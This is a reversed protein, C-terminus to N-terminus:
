LWRQKLAYGPDSHQHPTYDRDGNSHDNSYCGSGTCTFGEHFLEYSLHYILSFGMDMGCGGIVIADGSKNLRMGTAKAVSYNPHLDVTRFTEPTPTWNGFEDRKIEPQLLVVGIERQMGSRSVHRLITYVTDGPKIWERLQDIAEQKERDKVTM